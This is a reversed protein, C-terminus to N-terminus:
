NSLHELIQDALASDTVGAKCESFALLREEIKQSSQNVYRWSIALQEDNASDTAKNAMISFLNAAHVQKLITNRIIDGCIEILENQITKSTYLSNRDGSHLHEALIM